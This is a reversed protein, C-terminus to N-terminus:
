SVYTSKNASTEVPKRAEGCKVCSQACLELYKVEDETGVAEAAKRCLESPEQCGSDKCLKSISMCVEQVDKPELVARQTRMLLCTERALVCTKVYKIRELVEERMKKRSIEM